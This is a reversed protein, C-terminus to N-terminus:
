LFNTRFIWQFSQHQLELVKAGQYLYSVELFSRSAPFPQPSASFLTVSSSITPHSRWNLPCSISCVRSSPSPCSLRAHQLGHSQLSNSMVWHIFLLLTIYPMIAIILLAITYKFNILTSELLKWWLPFLTAIYIIYLHYINALGVRIIIECYLTLDNLWIGKVLEPNYTLLSLSLQETMDSEKGGWPSCLGHFEGPWFVPTPLRDRRCPIKGVWPDFWSQQM